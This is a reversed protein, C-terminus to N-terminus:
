KYILIAPTDTLRPFFGSTGADGDGVIATTEGSLAVMGSVYLIKKESQVLTNENLILVMYEEEEALLASCDTSSGDPALLMDSPLVGADSAEQLTGSFCDMHNFATYDASSGYSLEMYITGEEEECSELRVESEETEELYTTIKQETFEQLDGISYSPAADVLIQKLKGKKDVYVTTADPRKQGCGTMSLLICTLLIGASIKRCLKM